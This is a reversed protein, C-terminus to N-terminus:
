RHSLAPCKEVSLSSPYCERSWFFASLSRDPPGSSGVVCRTRVHHFAFRVTDPVKM